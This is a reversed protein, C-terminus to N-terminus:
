MLFSEGSDRLHDLYLDVVQQSLQDSDPLLEVGVDWRSDPRRECRRVVGRVRAFHSVPPGDIVLADLAFGLRVQMPMFLELDLELLSGLELKRRMRLRVGGDGVNSVRAHVISADAVLRCQVPLSAPFREGRRREM